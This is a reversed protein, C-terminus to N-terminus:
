QRVLPAGFWDPGNISRGDPSLELTFENGAAIMNRTEKCTFHRATMSPCEFVPWTQGAYRGRRQDAETATVQRAVANVRGGSSRLETRMVGFNGEGSTSKVFVAGDLSRVLAAEQERQLAAQKAALVEPAHAKEKRYEVEYILDRIQKSGPSAMQALKLSRLASEYDEAKDQAVGLNFYADGYWPAALTAQEVERAAARYDATSKAGKFAAAGRVMRREAEEPVAPGPKIGQALKIIRERLANDSPNRQLQEVMQKLQERPSQAYAGSMLALALLLVTGCFAQNRM